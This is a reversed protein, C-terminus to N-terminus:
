LEDWSRWALARSLAGAAEFCEKKSAAKAVDLVITAFMVFPAPERSNLNRSYTTKLKHLHQLLLVVSRETELAHRVTDERVATRNLVADALLAAFVEMKSACDDYLARTRTLEPTAPSLTARLERICGEIHTRCLAVPAFATSFSRQQRQSVADSNVERGYGRLTTTCWGLLLVHRRHLM